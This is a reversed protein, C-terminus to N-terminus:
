KVTFEVVKTELGETYIKDKIGGEADRHYAALEVNGLTDFRSTGDFVPTLDRVTAEVEVAHVHVLPKSIIFTSVVMLCAMAFSLVRKKM